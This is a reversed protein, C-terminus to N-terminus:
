FNGVINRIDKIDIVHFCNNAPYNTTFKIVRRCNTSTKQYTSEGKGTAQSLYIQSPSYTQIQSGISSIM